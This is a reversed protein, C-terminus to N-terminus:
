DVYEAKVDDFWVKGPGYMQLGIVIKKTKRPIKVTGSYGKWDHTAPKDRPSKAGIYSVWEHSIGESNEDLFVVDVIAKSANNAKVMAKIKIAKHISECEIAQNWEAIPFFKNETKTICLSAKGSKGNERDWLYTVTPVDQGQTWDNPSDDGDEMSANSLLSLVNVDDSSGQSLEKALSAVQKLTETSSKSDNKKEQDLATEALKVLSELKEIKSKSVPAKDASQSDASLLALLAFLSVYAISRNSVRMM